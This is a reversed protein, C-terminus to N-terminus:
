TRTPREEGSTFDPGTKKLYAKMATEPELGKINMSKIMIRHIEERDFVFDIHYNMSLDLLLLELSKEGYFGRIYIQKDQALLNSLTPALRLFAALVPLKKM